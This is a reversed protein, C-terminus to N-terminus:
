PRANRFEEAQEPYKAEWETLNRTVAAYAKKQATLQDRLIETQVAQHRYALCAAFLSLTLIIVAGNLFRFDAFRHM